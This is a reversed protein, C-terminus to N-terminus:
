NGLRGAQAAARFAEMIAIAGAPIEDDLQKLAELNLDSDVNWSDIVRLMYEANQDRTKAMLDAMSFEHASSTAIEEKAEGARKLAADRLEDFLAGSETKTFYKFTIEATGVTGDPMDFKLTVPKFTKPRQGLKLKAM